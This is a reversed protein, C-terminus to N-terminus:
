QRFDDLSSPLERWFEKFRNSALAACPIPDLDLVQNAGLEREEGVEDTRTDGHV